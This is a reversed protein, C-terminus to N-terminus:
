YRNRCQTQAINADLREEVFWQAGLDFQEIRAFEQNVVDANAQGLVFIEIAQTDLAAVKQGTDLELDPDIGGRPLAHNEQARFLGHQLGIQVEDDLRAPGAPTQQALVGHQDIRRSKALVHDGDRDRLPDFGHGRLRRGALRRWRCLAGPFRRTTIRYPQTFASQRRSFHGLPGKRGFSGACGDHALAIHHSAIFRQPLDRRLGTRLADRHLLGHQINM